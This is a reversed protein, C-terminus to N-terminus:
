QSVQIGPPGAQVQGVRRANVGQALLDSLLAESHQAPVAMLLGGSTQPDYLRGEVDPRQLSDALQVWKSYYAKNRGM